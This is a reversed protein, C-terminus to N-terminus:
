WHLKLWIEWTTFLRITYYICHNWQGLATDIQIDIKPGYFRAEGEVKKYKVKMDNLAKKM